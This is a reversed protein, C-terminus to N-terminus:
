LNKGPFFLPAYLSKDSFTTVDTNPDIIRSTLFIHPIM